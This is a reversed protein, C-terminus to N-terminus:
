SYYGERSRERSWQNLNTQDYLFVYCLICQMKKPVKSRVHPSAADGACGLVGGLSLM